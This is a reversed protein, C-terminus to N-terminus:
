GKRMLPVPSEAAAERLRTEVKVAVTVTRQDLSGGPGSATLTYDTTRTPKVDKEGSPEM